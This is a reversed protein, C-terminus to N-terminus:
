YLALHDEPSPPCGPIYPLGHREALARTCHGYCVIRGTAAPPLEKDQGMIVDTRHLICRWTGTVIHRPSRWLAAAGDHMSELCRSCTSAAAHIHVNAITVVKPTTFRIHIQDVDEGVVRYPVRSLHPVRALPISVLDCCAVDVALVDRGAVILRPHRTRGDTPGTGDMGVIGDVITLDPRVAELLAPIARHIGPDRHFHVKTAAPLLGKQNKCGLTVGAQVHTKLKPVNIYEHTQLLAPLRLTGYPWPVEIREAEDLNVVRAGYRHALNIVGTEALVRATDAGALASEGITIEYGDFVRLLAEIFRLDTISARSTGGLPLWRPLTLLNPKLLIQHRRPHYDLLRLAEAIHAEATRYTSRVVAVTPPDQPPPVDAM